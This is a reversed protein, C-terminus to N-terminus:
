GDCELGSLSTLRTLNLIGSGFGEESSAYSAPGGSCDLELELTGWPLTEVTSPAFDDGFIGGRTTVMEDFVFKGNLIEGVGFFWRREGAPDYSFWFILVRGDILVELTYGEGDHTLDYWSGSLRAEEREPPLQVRGCDIGMVRSLRVLQQRGHRDGIQWNM